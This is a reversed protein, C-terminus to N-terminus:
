LSASSHRRASGTSSARADAREGFVLGEPAGWSLGLAVGGAEALFAAPSFGAPDGLFRTQLLAFDLELRRAEAVVDLSGRPFVHVAPTEGRRVEGLLRHYSYSDVGVRTPTV